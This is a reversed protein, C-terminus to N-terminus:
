NTKPCQEPYAEALQKELARIEEEFKKQKAKLENHKDILEGYSLIETSQIAKSALSHGVDSNLVKDVARKILEDEM